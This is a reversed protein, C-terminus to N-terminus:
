TSTSSMQRLGGAGLVHVREDIDPGVEHPYPVLRRRRTYPESRGDLSRCVDYAVSHYKCDELHLEQGGVGSWPGLTTRSMTLYPLYTRVIEPDSLDIDTRSFEM